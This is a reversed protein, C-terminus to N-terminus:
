SRLVIRLFLQHPPMACLYRERKESLQGPILDWSQWKERSSLEYVTVIDFGMSHSLLSKAFCNAAIEVALYLLIIDLLLCPLM